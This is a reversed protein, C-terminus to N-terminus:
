WVIKTADFVPGDGDLRYYWLQPQFDDAVYFRALACDLGDPSQGTEIDVQIIQSTTEEWAGSDVLETLEDRDPGSLMTGLATSDGRAFADFFELVAKRAPNTAPAVAEELRVRQDIGLQAMLESVPTVAPRPPASPVAPRPPPAAAMAGQDSADSGCGTLGVGVALCATAAPGLLLVRARNRTMLSTM